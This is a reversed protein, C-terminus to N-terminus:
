APKTELKPRNVRTTKIGKYENHAKVTAKFTIVEGRAGLENNFWDVLNGDTTRVTTRTYGADGPYAPHSTFISVVEGTITLREKETGFHVSLADLRAREARAADRAVIHGNQMAVAMCAAALAYAVPENATAIKDAFFCVYGGDVEDIRKGAHKGFPFVGREITEMNQTDRVSLKGRRVNCPEDWVGGFEIKFDDTEGIRERMTAVYAEAKAVARTEGDGDEDTSALNCLYNDPMFADMRPDDNRRCMRLTFMASKEGTGIYYTQKIM